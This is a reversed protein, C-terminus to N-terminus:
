KATAGRCKAYHCEAYIAYKCGQAFNVSLMIVTLTFPVNAVSLMFPMKAFSLMFSMKAVSLM